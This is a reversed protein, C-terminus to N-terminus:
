IPKTVVIPSAVFFAINIMCNILSLKVFPLGRISDHRSPVFILNLGIIIVDKAKKKPTKGRARDFPAPDPAIFEIPVDTQPPISEEVNKINKIGRKKTIM